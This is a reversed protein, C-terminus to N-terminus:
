AHWWGLDARFCAECTTAAAEAPIWVDPHPDPLPGDCSTCVREPPASTHVRTAALRERDELRRKPGPNIVDLMDMRRCFEEQSIDTM